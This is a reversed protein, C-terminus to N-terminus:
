VHGTLELASTHDTRDSIHDKNDFYPHLYRLIGFILVEM